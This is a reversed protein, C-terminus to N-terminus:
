VLKTLENLQFGDSGTVEMDRNLHYPAPTLKIRYKGESLDVQALMALFDLQGV